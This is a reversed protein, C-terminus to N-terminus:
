LARDKENKAGRTGLGGDQGENWAGSRASGSEVGEAHDSWNGLGSRRERRRRDCRRLTGGQVGEDAVELQALAEEEGVVAPGPAEVLHREERRDVLVGGVM